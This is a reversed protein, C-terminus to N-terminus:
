SSALLATRSAAVHGSASSRSAKTGSLTSSSRRTLPPWRTSYVRTSLIPTNPLVLSPHATLLISESIHVLPHHTASHRVECDVDSSAQVLSQPILQHASTLLERVGNVLYLRMTKSPPLTPGDTAWDGVAEQAEYKLVLGELHAMAWDITYDDAVMQKGVTSIEGLVAEEANSFPCGAVGGSVVRGALQSRPSRAVATPATARM